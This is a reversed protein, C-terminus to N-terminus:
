LGVIGDYFIKMVGLELFVDGSVFSENFVLFVVLEVYYVLLYVCFLM